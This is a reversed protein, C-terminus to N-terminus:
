QAPESDPAPSSETGAAPATEQASSTEQQQKAYKAELDALIAKIQPIWGQAQLMQLERYLATEEASELEERVTKLMLETVL